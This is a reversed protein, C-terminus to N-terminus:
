NSKKITCSARITVTAMSDIEFVKSSSHSSTIVSSVCPWCYHTFPSAFPPGAGRLLSPSSTSLSGSSSSCIPRYWKLSLLMPRCGKLSLPPPFLHRAWPKPPLPPCPCSQPPPPHPPPSHERRVAVSRLGKLPLCLIQIGDLVVGNTLNNGFTKVIHKAM